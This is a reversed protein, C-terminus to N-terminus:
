TASQKLTKAVLGPSVIIKWPEDINRFHVSIHPLSSAERLFLTAPIGGIAAVALLLLLLVLLPLLSIM